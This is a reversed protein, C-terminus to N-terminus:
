NARYYKTEDTNGKSGMVKLSGIVYTLAGMYIVMGHECSVAECLCVKFTRKRCPNEAGVTGAADAFASLNKSESM